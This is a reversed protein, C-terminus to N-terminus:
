HKVIHNKLPLEIEKIGELVLQAMKRAGLENFHTDDKKGDPYNPNEGPQLHNYLLMSKDSGLEQILAMSKQSLDILPVNLEKSVKRVLQAYIKHTDIVKGNEDFSRRAVPTILIPFAGKASTENSYKKLYMVFDNETTYTKKTSVEDNHGFQILVYDGPKISDLVPQWRNEELFSKTSRGNKALNKVNVQDNFFWAFPMEWGTEPYAKVEKISLTSDGILYVTIIPKSKFAFLISVLGLLFFIKLKTM